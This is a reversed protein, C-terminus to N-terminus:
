GDPVLEHIFDRAVSIIEPHQGLQAMLAFLPDLAQQVDVQELPRSPEGEEVQEEAQELAERQETPRREQTAKISLQLVQGMVRQIRQLM